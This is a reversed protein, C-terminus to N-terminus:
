ELKVDGPSFEPDFFELERDHRKKEFEEFTIEKAIGTFKDREWCIAEGRIRSITFLYPDEKVRQIVAGM